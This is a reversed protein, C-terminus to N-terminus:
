QLLGLLERYVARESQGCQRLIGALEGYTDSDKARGKCMRAGSVAFRRWTDGVLTM